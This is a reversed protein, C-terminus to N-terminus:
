VLNRFIKALQSSIIKSSYNKEVLDRGHRGLRAFEERNFYLHKLAIYWDDESIAGIGVNGMALIDANMGVPSVIAPIGAAMYLLMKYSCKGRTWPDDLLPMIGVDMTHLITPEIEESWPIFRVNESPIHRFKPECDSVVLLEVDKVEKVFERFPREIMNLYKLNASVGIWGIVIKSEQTRDWKPLILDTNIGTPVIRVDNSYKSFWNALYTNGAIIVDSHKAILKSAVEKLPPTLWIADDVDFVLPRKLGWELSYIGALLERELWTLQYSWSSIIGPIRSGLKVLQWPLYLPLVWASNTNISVGPIFGYKSIRSKYEHVDVGLKSLYNVNQRVRLRSSPVNLGSTIARVKIM